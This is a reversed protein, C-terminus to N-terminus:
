EKLFSASDGGGREHQEQESMEPWGGVAVAGRAQPNQYEERGKNTGLYHPIGRGLPDNQNCVKTAYLMTSLGDLAFFDAELRLLRWLEPDQSFPPLKGAHNSLIYHRIHNGFLEGDREVFYVSRGHEDQRGGGAPIDGGFRAAFYGGANVLTSRHFYWVKGGDTLEIGMIEDSIADDERARKM